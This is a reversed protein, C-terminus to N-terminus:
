YGGIRPKCKVLIEVRRNKRRGEETTNAYLPRDPGYGSLSFREPPLRAGLFREMVVAARLFSLEDLSLEDLASEDAGGAGDGAQPPATHGSVAIDAQMRHMVPALQDLLQKGKNDLIASGPAFLLADTLVIVVGEPHSLLSLNHELEGASLGAPLADHPFLLDKVRQRKNRINDPDRLMKVVFTIRDDLKSTGSNELPSLSSNLASIRSVVTSEMSSMSLLLVFFTLLLTMLDSFTVMWAGGARSAEKKKRRGM